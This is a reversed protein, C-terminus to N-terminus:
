SSRRARNAEDQGPRDPQAVVARHRLLHDLAALVTVGVDAVSVDARRLAASVCDFILDTLSRSADRWTTSVASGHVYAPRM